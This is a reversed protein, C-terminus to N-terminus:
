LILFFNFKKRVNIVFILACYITELLMVSTQQQLIGGDFWRALCQDKDMLLTMM